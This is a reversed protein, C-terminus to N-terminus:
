MENTQPAAESPTQRHKEEGGGQGLQRDSLPFSESTNADKWKGGTGAGLPFRGRLDPLEFSEKSPDGGFKYKIAEFLQPYDARALSRGDCVLWGHPVTEVAGGFAVITGTPGARLKQVIGEADVQAQQALSKSSQAESAAAKAESAAKKADERYQNAAESKAEEIVADHIKGPLQWVTFGGIGVIAVGIIGGVAIIRDLTLKLKGIQDRLSQLDDEIAM